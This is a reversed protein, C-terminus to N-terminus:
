LKDCLVLKNRKELLKPHLDLGSSRTNIKSWVQVAVAKELDKKLTPFLGLSFLIECFVFLPALVLPQLPDDLIAPARKEYIQHGLIQAVWSVVHILISLKIPSFGYVEDMEGFKTASIALVYLVPTSLLGIVPHLLFYYLSYLIIGIVAANLPLISDYATHIIIGTKTLWVMASWLIAPVFIIHIAQNVKNAHFEGYKVFQTKFSFLSM